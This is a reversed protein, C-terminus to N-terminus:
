NRTAGSDSNEGFVGDLLFLGARTSDTEGVSGRLLVTGRNSLKVPNFSRLVPGQGDGTEGGLLLLKTAGDLAPVSSTFDGVWLALRGGSLQVTSVVVIHGLPAPPSTSGSNSIPASFSQITEDTTVSARDGTKVFVGGQDTALAKVGKKLDVSVFSLQVWTSPVSTIRKLKGLGRIRRGEILTDTAFLFNSDVVIVRKFREPRQGHHLEVVCALSFGLNGITFDDIIEKPGFLTQGTILSEGAPFRDDSKFIIAKKGDQFLAIFVYRSFFQGSEIKHSIIAPKSFSKYTFGRLSKQGAVAVAEVGRPTWLFMGEAAPTGELEARFLIFDENGLDLEGFTKFTGGGPVTEGSRLIARTVEASRLFLASSSQSDSLLASFAVHRSDNVSSFLIKSYTGGVDEPAPDAELAITSFSSGSQQFTSGARSEANVSGLGSLLVTVLGVVAAPKLHLTISCKRSLRLITRFM